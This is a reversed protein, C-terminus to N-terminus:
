FKKGSFYKLYCTTIAIAVQLPYEFSITLSIQEDNNQSVHWKENQGAATHKGSAMKWKKTYEDM